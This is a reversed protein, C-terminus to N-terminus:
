VFGPQNLVFGSSRPGGELEQLPSWGKASAKKPGEPLFTSIISNQGMKPLKQHETTVKTLKNTGKHPM